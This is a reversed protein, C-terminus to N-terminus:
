MEPLGESLPGSLGGSYLYAQLLLVCGSHVSRQLQRRDFSPGHTGVVTRKKRLTCSWLLLWCLVWRQPLVLDLRPHLTVLLGAAILVTLIDLDQQTNFLLAIALAQRVVRVWGREFGRHLYSGTYLRYLLTLHGFEGM